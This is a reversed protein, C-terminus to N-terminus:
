WSTEVVSMGSQIQDDPANEGGGERVAEEM